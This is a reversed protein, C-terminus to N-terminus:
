SPRDWFGPGVPEEFDGLARLYGHEDAEIPLQPLPRAAPGFLPRAGDLVSFTSQHCPCLLEATEARYLGVPCGAHTCIKSYAVNGAPVWAMRERALRLDSREVRILVVQSDPRGVDGEPFVTVISGVELDDVRLPTGDGAVLRAGRRWGTQLLARGPAPGLSRIPFLAAIGLAGLAALLSRLLGRRGTMTRGADELAPIGADPDEAPPPLEEAIEEHALLRTAWLILGLGVGGLAVGLLLGEAQPQGGAVYLGALALGALTAAAFLLRIAREVRTM